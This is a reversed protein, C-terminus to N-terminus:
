YSQLDEVKNFLLELILTKKQSNQSIKLFLKKTYFVGPPQKQILLLIKHLRFTQITM